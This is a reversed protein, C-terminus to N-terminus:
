SQRTPESIHILSLHIHTYTHTHTHTHTHAHTRAHTRVPTHTPASALAHAYTEVVIVFIARSEEERRKVKLKADQVRKTKYM